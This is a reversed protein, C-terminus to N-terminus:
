LQKRERSEDFPIPFVSFFPFYCRPPIRLLGCMESCVRPLMLPPETGNAALDSPVFAWGNGWDHAVGLPAAQLGNEVTKSNDGSPHCM